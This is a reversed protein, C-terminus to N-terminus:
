SWFTFFFTPFITSFFTDVLVVEHCGLMILFSLLYPFVAFVGCKTSCINVYSFSKEKKNFM